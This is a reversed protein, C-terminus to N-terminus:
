RLSRLPATQCNSQLRLLPVLETGLGDIAPVSSKELMTEL